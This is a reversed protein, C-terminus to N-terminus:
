NITQAGDPDSELFARLNARPETKTDGHLGEGPPSAGGFIRPRSVPTFGLESAAKLMILAQRNIVPLYPSQILTNSEPAARVLLQGVKNQGITAQRHLDEAIVWAVLAGRDLRKLLGPPACNLAYEWGAKQAPSFFDPADSLNGVPKPETKNPKRGKNPRGHLENLM